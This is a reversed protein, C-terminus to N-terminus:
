DVSLWEALTWLKGVSWKSMREMQGSAVREHTSEDELDFDLPSLSVVDYAMPLMKTNKDSIAFKLGQIHSVSDRRDTLNAAVNRKQIDREETVRRLEAKLRRVDPNQDSEVRRVM